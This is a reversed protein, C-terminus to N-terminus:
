RGGGALTGWLYGLPRAATSAARKLLTQKVNPAQKGDEDGPPASQPRRGQAARM